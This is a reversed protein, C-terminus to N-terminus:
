IKSINVSYSLWANSVSCFSGDRDYIYSKIFLDCPKVSFASASYQIKEIKQSHLFNLDIHFHKQSFFQKSIKIEVLGLHAQMCM